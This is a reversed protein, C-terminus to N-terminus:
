ECTQPTSVSHWPKYFDGLGWCETPSTRSEWLHDQFFVFLLILGLSYWIIFKFLMKEFSFINIHFIYFFFKKIELWLFCTTDHFSYLHFLCVEHFLKNHAKKCWILKFNFMVPCMRILVHFIKILHNESIIIIITMYLSIFNQWASKKM